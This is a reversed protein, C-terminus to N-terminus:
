ELSLLFAKIDDREEKELRLPHRSLTQNPVDAGIMFGAGGGLNYFLLLKDLDKLSGNHMYPFSNKLHRVTPVKFSSQHGEYHTFIYLGSDKDLVPRNFNDIRLVGIVENDEKNFFPPQVGNFAPMFHCTGCKAQGMFLNFGRMIAPSIANSDGQMYRDFDSDWKVLSHIYAELALLPMDITISDKSTAFVETFVEKLNDNKRIRKLLTTEDINGMETHSFIVERFQDQLFLLHGDRQFRLHYVANLLSPTNRQLTDTLEFGANLKVTDAFELDAKHCTACSIRQNSSMIKSNFLTEGLSILQLSYQNPNYHYVQNIYSTQFFSTYAPISFHVISSKWEQAAVFAPQLYNRIFTLRNFRDFDKTNKQLFIIGAQLQSQLKKLYTNTSHYSVLMGNLGQLSANCETIADELVPKDFGTTGLAAIRLLQRSVAEALATDSYPKTFPHQQLFQATGIAQTIELQLQPRAETYTASDELFSEIVQLGHPQEIHEFTGKELELEPLLRSNLNTYQREDFYAVLGEM